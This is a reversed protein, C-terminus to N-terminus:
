ASQPPSEWTNPPKLEAQRLLYVAFSRTVPELSSAHCLDLLQRYREARVSAPPKQRCAVQILLKKDRPHREEPKRQADHIPFHRPANICESAFANVDRDFTLGMVPVPRAGYRGLSRRSFVNSMGNISSVSAALIRAPRTLTSVRTRQPDFSSSSMLTQCKPTPLSCVARATRESPRANICTAISSFHPM